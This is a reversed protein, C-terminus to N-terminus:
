YFKEQVTTDVVVTQMTPSIVKMKFGAAITEALLSVM